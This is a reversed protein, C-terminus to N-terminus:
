FGDGRIEVLSSGKQPSCRKGEAFIQTETHLRKIGIWARLPTGNEERKAPRQVAEKGRLETPNVLQIKEWSFNELAAGYVWM